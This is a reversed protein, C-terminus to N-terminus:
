SYIPLDLPSICCIHWLYSFPLKGSPSVDYLSFSSWIRLTICCIQIYRESLTKETQFIGMYQRIAWSLICSHQECWNQPYSLRMYAVSKLISAQGYPKWGRFYILTALRLAISCIQYAWFWIDRLDSELRNTEEIHSMGNLWNHALKSLSHSV